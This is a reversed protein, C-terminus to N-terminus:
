QRELWDNMNNIEEQQVRIITQAFDKLEQHKANTTAYTSMSIAQQHHQIMQTAFETDFANGSTNNLAATMKAVGEAMTGGQEMVHGAHPDSADSFAYGWEQRWSLMTRIEEPQVTIIDEAIARIDQDTSEQIAMSAMDLAGQHHVIMDSLYANDFDDGSMYAYM